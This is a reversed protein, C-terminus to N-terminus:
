YAGEKPKTGYVITKDEKEIWIKIRNSFTSYKAFYKTNKEFNFQKIEFHAFTNRYRFTLTFDRKSPAIKVSKYKPPFFSFGEDDFRLKLTPTSWGLFYIQTEGQACSIESYNSKDTFTKHKEPTINKPITGIHQPVSGCGTFSITIVFIIVGYIIKKM